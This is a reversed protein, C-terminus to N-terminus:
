RAGKGAKYTETVRAVVTSQALRRAYERAIGMVKQKTTAIKCRACEVNEPTFAKDCQTPTVPDLCRPCRLLWFAPKSTATTM